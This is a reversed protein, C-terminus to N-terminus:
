DVDFAITKLLVCEFSSWKLFASKMSIMQARTLSKERILVKM